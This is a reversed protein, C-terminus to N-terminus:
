DKKLFTARFVMVFVFVLVAVGLFALGVVIFDETQMEVDM